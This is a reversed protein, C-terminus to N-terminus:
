KAENNSQEWAPKVQPGYATALYDAMIKREDPTWLAGRGMMRYLTAEWAARDQRQDRFMTDTHCQFCNSSILKRGPDETKADQGRASLDFIFIAALALAVACMHRYAM